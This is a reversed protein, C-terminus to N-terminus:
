FHDPKIVNSFNRILFLCNQGIKALNLMQKNCFPGKQGFGSFDSLSFVCILGFPLLDANSTINKLVM